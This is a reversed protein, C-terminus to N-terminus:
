GREKPYPGSGRQHYSGTESKEGADGVGIPRGISSQALRRLRKGREVGENEVGELVGALDHRQELAKGLHGQGFLLDFLEVGFAAGEEVDDAADDASMAFSQCFLGLGRRFTPGLLFWKFHRPLAAREIRRVPRGSRAANSILKGSMSSAPVRASCDLPKNSTRISRM